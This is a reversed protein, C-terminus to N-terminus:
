YLHRIVQEIMKRSLGMKGCENNTSDCCQKNLQSSFPHNSVPYMTKWWLTLTLYM